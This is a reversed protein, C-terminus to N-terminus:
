GGTPRSPGTLRTELYPPATTTLKMARRHSAGPIKKTKQAQSARGGPSRQQRGKEPVATRAGLCVEGTRRRASRRCQQGAAWLRYVRVAWKHKVKELGGGEKPAM